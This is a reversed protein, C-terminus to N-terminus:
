VSIKRLPGGVLGSPKVFLLIVLILFAIAGQWRSSIWVVSFQLVGAVLFSGAVVGWLTNGGIVMATIAYMLPLLGMNPYIDTDFALLIGALAALFSGWAMAFAYIAKADVGVAKALEPDAALARMTKGIATRALILWTIAAGFIAAVLAFVQIGTIHAGFISYGTDVPWGRVSRAMDGYSAALINVVVVYAGLSALLFTSATGRRVRLPHYVALDLAVGAASSVAMAWLAAIWLPWGVMKVLTYTIYAAFTLVAGHAFHFFRGTSYIVQVGIGVLVILAGAVIANALYQM